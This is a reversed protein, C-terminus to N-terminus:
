ALNRQIVSTRPWEFNAYVEIENRESADVSWYGVRAGTPRLGCAAFRELFAHERRKLYTVALRQSPDYGSLVEIAAALRGLSVAFFPPDCLILDFRESVPRPRALDWRHFGPLYAFREDLDLVAARRGRGHLEAGITPACLICPREFREAVRTWAAVTPADFFYQERERRESLTPQRVARVM